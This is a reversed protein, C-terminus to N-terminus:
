HSHCWFDHDRWCAKRRFHKENFHPLLMRSSPKVFMHNYLWYSSDIVGSTYDAADNIVVAHVAPSRM